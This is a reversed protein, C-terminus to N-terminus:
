IENRLPLTAHMIGHAKARHETSTAPDMYLVGFGFQVNEVLYCGESECSVVLTRAPKGLPGFRIGDHAM